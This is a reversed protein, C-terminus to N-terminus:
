KKFGVWKGDEDLGRNKLEKKAFEVPDIKGALIDTLLATATLSYLYLPNLEDSLERTEM